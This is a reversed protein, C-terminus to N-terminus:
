RLGGKFSVVSCTKLELQSEPCKGDYQFVEMGIGMCFSPFPKLVNM